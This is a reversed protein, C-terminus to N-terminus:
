GGILPQDYSFLAENIEYIDYNGRGIFYEVIVDAKSSHSLAFGASNLLAETEALSLDLAIAFALVTPKKPKYHINSRIKSFLKRDINARKYVQADTKGSRDILMLLKQSFSLDLKALADDLSSPEDFAATDKLVNVSESARLDSEMLSPACAIEKSFLATDDPLSETCNDALYQELRRAHEERLQVASRQFVVLAVKIENNELFDAIARLAVSIAEDKPYGYAGASILPFAISRCGNEKALELSSKYCSYLLEEEGNKGGRWVPGVTHIIYRCPMDYGGTIKAKGTDCGGLTRCELLLKYGAAHHIAGDVGGGGLLTRNAANVVADARIKTIDGNIIRFPMAGEPTNEDFPDTIISNHFVSM